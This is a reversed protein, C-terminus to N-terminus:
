TWSIQRKIFDAHQAVYDRPASLVVFDSMLRNRWKQTAMRELPWGVLCACSIFCLFRTVPHRWMRGVVSHSKVKICDNSMPFTVAVSHPYGTQKVVQLIERRVADYDWIAKKMVRIEKLVNDAKVYSEVVQEIDYPESTANPRVGYINGKEHIFPTLDLSFKFDVVERRTHTERRTRRDEMHSGVVEVQVRPRENCEEFFRRLARADTNLWEDCSSYGKSTRKYELQRFFEQSTMSDANRVSNGERITPPSYPLLPQQEIHLPKGDISQRNTPVNNAPNRSSEGTDEHTSSIVDDYSPLLPPASPEVQENNNESANPPPENNGNGATEFTPLEEVRM